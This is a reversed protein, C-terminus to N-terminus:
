RGGGVLPSLQISSGSKTCAAGSEKWSGLDADNPRDVPPPRALPEPFGSTCLGIRYGESWAHEAVLRFATAIDIRESERDDLAQAVLMAIVRHRERAPPSAVDSM